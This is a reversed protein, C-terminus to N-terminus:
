GGGGRVLGLKSMQAEARQEASVTIPAPKCM